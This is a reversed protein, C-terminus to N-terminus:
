ASFGAKELTDLGVVTEPCFMIDLLRLARGAGCGFDSITPHRTRPPISRQLDLLAARIAQHRWIKTGLFWSVM